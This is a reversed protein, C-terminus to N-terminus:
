SGRLSGAVASGAFNVPGYDTKVNGTVSDRVSASKLQQCYLDSNFAPLSYSRELGVTCIADIKKSDIRSKRYDTSSAQKKVMIKKARERRLYYM